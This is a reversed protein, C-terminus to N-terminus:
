NNVGLGYDEVQLADRFDETDTAEHVHHTYSKVFNGSEWAKNAFMKRMKKAMVRM